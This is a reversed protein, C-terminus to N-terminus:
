FFNKYSLLTSVGSCCKELNEIYDKDLEMPKHVGVPANGDVKEISFKQAVFYTPKNEIYFSFYVDSYKLYPHNKDYPHLKIINTIVSKKCFSFGSNGVLVDKESYPQHWPAGVYDYFMFEEELLHVNEPCIWSDTQIMLVYEGEIANWLELSTSFTDFEERTHLNNINFKSISLNSVNRLEDKVYQINDTGCIIQIKWHPLAKRANEICLKILHHKRFEVMVIVKLSDDYKNDRNLYKKFYHENWSIEKILKLTFDNKNSLTIYNKDENDKNNENKNDENNKKEIKEIKNNLEKSLKNNIYYTFSILVITMLMLFLIVFYTKM